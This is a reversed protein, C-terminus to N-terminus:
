PAEEALSHTVIRVRTQNRLELLRKELLANAQQELLIEGIADAVAALPASAKGAAQQSPVYVDRYYQAVEDRSAHLGTKFRLSVYREFAISQTVFALFDAEDLGYHKLAEQFTRGGAYTERRYTQVQAAADRPDVTLFRAVSQDSLVLSRDVLRRLAEERGQLAGSPAGKSLMAALRVEADVESVTIARTGVVAAVRDVIEAPVSGALALALAIRPRRSPSLLLPM